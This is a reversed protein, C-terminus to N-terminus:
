WVHFISFYLLHTPCLESKSYHAELNEFYIPSEFTTEKYFAYIMLLKITSCWFSIEQLINAIKSKWIIKWVNLGTIM